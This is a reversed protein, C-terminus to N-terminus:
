IQGLSTAQSQRCFEILIGAHRMLAPRGAGAFFAEGPRPETLASLRLILAM